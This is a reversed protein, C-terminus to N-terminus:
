VVSKGWTEKHRSTCRVFNSGIKTICVFNEYEFTVTRMKKRRERQDRRWIESRDPPDDDDDVSGDNAEALLEDRWHMIDLASKVPEEEDDVQVPEGAEWQAPTCQDATVERESELKLWCWDGIQLGDNEPRLEEEASVRSRRGIESEGAAVLETVDNSKSRTAM